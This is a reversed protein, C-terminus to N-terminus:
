KLWKGPESFIRLRLYRGNFSVCRSQRLAAMTHCHLGTPSYRAALGTNDSIALRPTRRLFPIGVSAM